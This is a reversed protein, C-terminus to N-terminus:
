GRGHQVIRQFVDGVAATHKELSFLNLALAKAAGTLRARLERDAGLAGIRDALMDDDDVDVLFGTRGDLIADPIGGVPTACVPVGLLMAEAVVRPFGETRSPVIVVDSRVIISQLDNRWGIFHVDQELRLNSIAAKLGAYYAHDVGTPIEGTIWLVADQGKDKLRRLARLAVDLGKDHVPRAAPLLIKLLREEGPLDLAKHREEEVTGDIGVANPIPFIKGRPIGYSVFRDAIIQSHVVLGAVRNKLLFRFFRGIQGPTGWGRYYLVVPFRARLLPGLVFVLSKENNTWVIDPGIENLVANLRKRIRWFDGLQSLASGIRMLPRGAHGIFLERAEPFLVHCPLGAKQIRALYEPCKGYADVIHVDMTKSLREALSITGAPAGGFAITFDFFVAKM